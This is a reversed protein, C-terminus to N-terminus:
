LPDSRWLATTPVVMQMPRSLASRSQCFNRTFTTGAGGGPAPNVVQLTDKGTADGPMTIAVTASNYSVYTTAYTTGNMTVTTRPVFGSGTLTVTQTGGARLHVPSTSTVTPVPNILNLTYSTTLAPLATLYATITVASSSPMTPPPTYIANANTTGSTSLTGGGQVTWGVGVHLTDRNNATINVPVGLRATGTNTGDPDTATESLSAIPVQLVPSTGGGPAPTEAEVTLNGSSGPPATILATLSTSSVFTTAAPVGNLLIVTNPVLNYGSFTLPVTAGEVAQPTSFYVNPIPNTLTFTYSTTVVPYYSLYATVIVTPNAPMTSPSTYTAGFNNTGTPTLTGAGQLSWSVAQHAADTNITALNVAGLLRATARTRGTPTAPM